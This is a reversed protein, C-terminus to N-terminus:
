DDDEEAAAYREACAKRIADMDPQYPNRFKAIAYALGAVKGKQERYALVGNIFEEDEEMLTEADHDWDERDEMLKAYQIDLQETLMELITQGAHKHLDKPDPTKM